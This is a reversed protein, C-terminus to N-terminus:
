NPRRRYQLRWYELVSALTETWPTEPAWGTSQSFASADCVARPIDSSRLRAPDAEVVFEAAAMSKLGDLISAISRPVGSAVNFTAFGTAGDALRVAVLYARVVDAIDLSLGNAKGRAL